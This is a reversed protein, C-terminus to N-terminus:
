KERGMRIQKILKYVKELDERSWGYKPGNLIQGMREHSIEEGTLLMFLELDEEFSDSFDGTIEAILESRAYKLAISTVIDIDKDKLVYCLRAVWKAERVTFATKFHERAYIWAKLVSPLAGPPIGDHRIAVSWPEDEPNPSRIQKRRIKALEKQVASLGPWSPNELRSNVEAQIEKARWDPHELYVRAILQRVEKTIQRGLPM